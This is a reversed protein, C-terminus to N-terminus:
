ENQYLQWGKIFTKLDNVDIVYDVDIDAASNYNEDGWASAWSKMLLAYDAFDVKGDANLDGMPRVDAVADIEPSVEGLDDLVDGYEDYSILYKDVANTIRIYRFSTINAPEFTQPDVAWKIDFADGGGSGPTIGVTCPDDPTTYFIEVTLNVDDGYSTDTNDGDRDGLKLTPTYEAYGWYGEANDNCPDSDLVNPNILTIYGSSLNDLGSYDPFLEYAGTTYSLPWNTYAPYDMFLRDYDPFDSYNWQVTRFSSNDKLHSGAILYWKEDPHDGAINNGNCEPMIEITALEAWHVQPNNSIYIANTFVIADMGFPNAPNDEVDHDFALVIQGGFGGLSVMAQTSIHSDPAGLAFGPNNFQPRMIFQGPAPLFQPYYPSNLSIDYVSSAFPNYSAFLCGTLAFNLIIIRFINM